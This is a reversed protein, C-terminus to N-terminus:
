WALILEKITEGKGDRKPFVEWFLHLLKKITKDKSPLVFRIIPFLLEPTPTGNALALIVKKLAAIKVDTGGHELDKKVNQSNFDGSNHILITAM